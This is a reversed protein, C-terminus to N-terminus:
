AREQTLFRNTQSQLRSSACCKPNAHGARSLCTGLFFLSLSHKYLFRDLSYDQTQHGKKNGGEMIDMRRRVRSVSQSTSSSTSSLLIYTIVIKGTSLTRRSPMSLFWQRESQLRCVVYKSEKDPEAKVDAREGEKKPQSATAPQRTDITESGHWALKGFFFEITRTLCLIIYYLSGDSSAWCNDLSSPSGATRGGKLPKQIENREM